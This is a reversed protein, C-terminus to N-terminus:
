FSIDFNLDFSWEQLYGKFTSIGDFLSSLPNPLYM